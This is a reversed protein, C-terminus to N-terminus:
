DTLWSISMGSLFNGFVQRTSLTPEICLDFVPGFKYEVLLQGQIFTSPLPEDLQLAKPM